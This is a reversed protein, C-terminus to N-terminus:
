LGHDIVDLPTRWWAQLLELSADLLFGKSSAQWGHPSQPWIFIQRITEGMITYPPALREINTYPSCSAFRWWASRTSAHVILFSSGVQSLSSRWWRAWTSHVLFIYPRSLNEKKGTEYRQNPSQTIPYITTSDLPARLHTVQNFRQPSNLGKFVQCIM